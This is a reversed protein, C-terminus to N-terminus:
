NNKIVVVNELCAMDTSLQVSLRFSLGDPSTGIKNIRGVFIGAPFVQSYGSTEVAQGVKIRAHHPVDDMTSVLMNGGQWHLYGIYGTGRIRCTINSRTNLISMVQSCHAGVQTVIGVIGTGCAVGMGEEVGDKSGRDITLTNDLLWVSCSTVRAPILECGRLSEALIRETETSDHSLVEVAERLQAIQQQLMFNRQTLERNDSIMHSYRLISTEMGLLKSAVINSQTFFVSGQYNNHQM